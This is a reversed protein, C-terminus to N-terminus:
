HLLRYGRYPSRTGYYGSSYSRRPSVGYHITPARYSRYSPGYHTRYSPSYRVSRGGYPYGVYSRGGYFGGGYPARYSRYSSGSYISLGRGYGNGITLGFGGADARPTDVAMSGLVLVAPLIIWRFM